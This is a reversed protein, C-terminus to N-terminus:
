REAAAVARVTCVVEGHVKGDVVLVAPCAWQGAATATGNWVVGRKEGPRVPGLDWRVTRADADYTGRDTARVFTVEKPLTVRVEVGPRAEAGDNCVVLEYLAAKEVGVASPPTAALSIPPPTVRFKATQEVPTTMGRATLRLRASLDGVRTPTVNLTITRSQGPELVGLPRMLDSGHSHELGDPLLTELAVDRVPSTGPNTVTMRLTAPTHVVAPGTGAVDLNVTTQRVATAATNRGSAQFTLEVSHMFQPDIAGAARKLRVRIVREQGPEM